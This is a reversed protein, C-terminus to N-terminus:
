RVGQVARYVSLFPIPFETLFCYMNHNPSFRISCQNETIYLICPSPFNRFICTTIQTWVFVVIIKRLICYAFWLMYIVSNGM